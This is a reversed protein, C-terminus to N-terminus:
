LYSIEYLQIDVTVIATTGISDEVVCQFTAGIEQNFSVTGSFATTAASSATASITDGSVKTWTYTLTGVGGSATVTVPQSICTGAGSTAGYTYEPFVTAVINVRTPSLAAIIGSM